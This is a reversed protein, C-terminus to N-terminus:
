SQTITRIRQLRDDLPHLQELRLDDPNVRKDPRPKAGYPRLSVARMQGAHAYRGAEFRYLPRTRDAYVDQYSMEIVQTPRVWRYGDASYLPEVEWLLPSTKSLQAGDAIDVLLGDPRMLAFKAGMLAKPGRETKVGCMPCADGAQVQRMLRSREDFWAEKALRGAKVQEIVGLLDFSAACGTCVVGGYVERFAIIAADLTDRYKIKYSPGDEAHLVLGEFGRAGIQADWLAQLRSREQEFSDDVDEHSVLHVCDGDVGVGFQKMRKLAQFREVHTSEPAIEGEANRLRYDFVALRIREVDARTRPNKILSMSHNFPTMYNLGDDGPSVVHTEGLLILHRLSDARADLWATVPHLHDDDLSFYWRGQHNWVVFRDKEEDWMAVGLMGNYKVQALGGAHDPLAPLRDRLAFGGNCMHPKLRRLRDCWARVPIGADFHRQGFFRENCQM